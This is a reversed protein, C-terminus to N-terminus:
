GRLVAKEGARGSEFFDDSTAAAHQPMGLPGALVPLPLASM